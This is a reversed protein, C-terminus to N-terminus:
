TPNGERYPQEKMHNFDKSHIHGHCFSCLWIVSLPKNYDTHHGDPICIRGCADCSTPRELKGDRVAHGLITRALDRQNGWQRARILLIKARHKRYYERGQKLRSERWEPDTRMKSSQYKRLYANCEERHEHQRKKTCALMQERHEIYYKRGYEKSDMFNTYCVKIMIVLAIVNGLQM